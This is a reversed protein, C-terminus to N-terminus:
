IIFLYYIMELNERHTRNIRKDTKVVKTSKKKLLSQSSMLSDGHAASYALCVTNLKSLIIIVIAICLCHLNHLTLFYILFVANTKM